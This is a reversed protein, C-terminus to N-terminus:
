YEATVVVTQDTTVGATTRLRYIGCNGDVQIPLNQILWMNTGVTQLGAGSTNTWGDVGAAGSDMCEIYTNGCSPTATTVCTFTVLSPTVKVGNRELTLNITVNGGSNPVTVVSGRFQQAMASSAMTAAMVAAVLIVRRIM